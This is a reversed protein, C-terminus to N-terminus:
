QTGEQFKPIDLNIENGNENSRSLKINGGQSQILAKAIIINLSIKNNELLDAIPKDIPPLAGYGAIGKVVSSSKVSIEIHDNEGASVDIHGGVPTFKIIDEILNILARATKDRDIYGAALDASLKNKLSINKVAAEERIVECVNNILENINVKEKRLKIEQKLIKELDILDTILQTLRNVARQSFLLSKQQTTNIRGATEESVLSIGEKIVTLLAGIRHSARSILEFTIKDQAPM